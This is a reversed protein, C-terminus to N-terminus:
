PNGVRTKELVAAIKANHVLFPPTRNASNVENALRFKSLTDTSWVDKMALGATIFDLYRIVYERAPYQKCVASYAWVTFTALSLAMDSAEKTPEKGEHVFDHRHQMLKDIVSHSQEDITLLAKLRSQLLKFNSSQELLLMEMSTIAATLRAGPTVENFGRFIRNCAGVVLHEVPNRKQAALIRPLEHTPSISWLKNNSSQISSSCNTSARLDVKSVPEVTLDVPSGIFTYKGQVFSGNDDIASVAHVAIPTYCKAMQSPLFPRIFSTNATFSLSLLMAIEEARNRASEFAAEHEGCHSRQVAIFSDPPIDVIREANPVQNIDVIDLLNSVGIVALVHKTEDESLTASVMQSITEISCITTDGFIPHEVGDEDETLRFGHLGVLYWYKHSVRMKNFMTNQKSKSKKKGM